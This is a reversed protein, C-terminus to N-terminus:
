SLSNEEYQNCIFNKTDSHEKVQKSKHDIQPVLFEDCCVDSCHKDVILMANLSSSLMKIFVCLYVWCVCNRVYLLIFDTCQFHSTQMKEIDASYKCFIHIKSIELYYLLMGLTLHTIKHPKQPLNWLSELLAFM